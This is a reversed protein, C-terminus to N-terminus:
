RVMEREGLGFDEKAATADRPISFLMVRRSKRPEAKSAEPVAKSPVPVEMFDRAIRTEVTSGYM